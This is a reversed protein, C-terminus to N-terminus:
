DHPREARDLLLMLEEKPVEVYTEGLVGAWDIREKIAKIAELEDM